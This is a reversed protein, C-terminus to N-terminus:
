LVTEQRGDGLPETAAVCCGLLSIRLGYYFPAGSTVLSITGFVLLNFHFRM